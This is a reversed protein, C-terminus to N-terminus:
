AGEPRAWKASVFDIVIIHGGPALAAVCNKLITVCSDFGWDHRYIRLVVM